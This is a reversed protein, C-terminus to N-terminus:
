KELNIYSAIRLSQVIAEGLEVFGGLDQPAAALGGGEM